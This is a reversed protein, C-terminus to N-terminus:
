PFPPIDAGKAMWFFAKAGELHGVAIAIYDLRRIM